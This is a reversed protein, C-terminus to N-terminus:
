YIGHRKGALYIDRELTRTFQEEMAIADSKRLFERNQQQQNKRLQELEGSLHEMRNRITELQLTTEERKQSPATFNQTVFSLTTEQSFANAVSLPEREQTKEAPM